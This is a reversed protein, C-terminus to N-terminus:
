WSSALADGMLLLLRKKVIFLGSISIFRFILRSSALSYFHGAGYRRFCVFLAFVSRQARQLQM